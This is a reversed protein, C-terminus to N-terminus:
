WACNFIKYDPVPFRRSISEFGDMLDKYDLKESEEILPYVIYIQRGKKIEDEIFQFVQLRSKDFRHITKIPKRGPPM